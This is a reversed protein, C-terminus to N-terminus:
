KNKIALLLMMIERASMYRLPFISATKEGQNNNEIKPTDSTQTNNVIHQYAEQSIKKVESIAKIQSKKLQNEFSIKLIDECIERVLPFDYVCFSKWKLRKPLKKFIKKLHQVFKHLLLQSKESFRQNDILNTRM